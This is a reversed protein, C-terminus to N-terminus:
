SPARGPPVSSRQLRALGCVLVRDPGISRLPRGDYVGTAKELVRVAERTLAMEGPAPGGGRAAHRELEARLGDPDLRTERLVRRIREDEVRLVGLLLHELGIVPSQLRRAESRAASLARRGPEDLARIVDRASEVGARARIALWGLLGSVLVGAAVGWWPGILRSAFWGVLTGVLLLVVVSARLRDAPTM